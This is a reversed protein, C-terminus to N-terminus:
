NIEQKELDGNKERLSNQIDRDALNIKRKETHADRERLSNKDRALSTLVSRIEVSFDSFLDTIEKDTMSRFIKFNIEKAIIMGKIDDVASPFRTRFEREIMAIVADVSYYDEKGEDADKERFGM